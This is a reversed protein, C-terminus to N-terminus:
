EFRVRPDCLAVLVDALINGLLVLLASFLAIAMVVPYDRHIASDFGLLGFGDIDFIVEILFSGTLLATVQHGLSTAMPILSNRLAHRRVAQKFTVGKAVATRVYDAALNDMLTNKMLFTTFAFSGVLYCILPLISHHVIDWAKGGLTMDEFDYSMFGSTPFWEMKAAFFVWLLAGLVYGPIAYGIFVFISSSTDFLSNHRVAKAIGLPICVLYTILLTTLGYYISIPLRERIVKGVPETFRFSMGLDGKCVKGLWLPYAVYWPKDLGYYEKLQNLQEKSLSMQEASSGGAGGGESSVARAQALAQDMPGGPVFRTIAFVILTVGILTPPILLLRRIFYDRM